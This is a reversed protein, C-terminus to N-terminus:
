IIRYFEYKTASLLKVPNSITTSLPFSKKSGNETEFRIRDDVTIKLKTVGKRNYLTVNAERGALPVIDYVGKGKMSISDVGRKSFGLYATDLLKIYGSEGYVLVYPCAEGAYVVGTINVPTKTKVLRNGTASRKLTPINEPKVYYVTDNDILGVIGSKDIPVVDVLEDGSNLTIVKGKVSKGCESYNMIKGYGDRTVFVLDKTAINSIVEIHVVDSFAVKDMAIGAKTLSFAYGNLVKMQGKKNFLVLNDANTMKIIKFSKDISSAIVPLEDYKEICFFQSDNYILIKSEDSSEMLDEKADMLKGRRRMSYHKIGYRLDEKIAERINKERCLATYKDYEDCAKQYKDREAQLNAANLVKLRLNMVITAQFETLGFTNRLKEKAEDDNKSGRIIKICKDMGGNKTDSLIIILAKASAKDRSAIKKKQTFYRRKQDFRIKIWELLIQRPTYLKPQYDHAVMYKAGYTMGLSTMKLLKEALANPDYGREYEVVFMLDGPDGKPKIAAHVNIVEPLKKSAADRSEDARKIKRVQEEILEGRTQMPCSTFVVVHKEYKNGNRDRGNMIDVYYPAQVKVKFDTKDFCGKLQKKNVINLNAPTDPYIDIKARPHDILELTAEMIEKSNFAAFVTAAGFGIGFNWQMLINPFRTALYVPEIDTKTYAEKVDYVPGLGDEESFFCDMAYKSLRAEAYRPAAAQMTIANGYGGHGDIYPIMAQFNRGLRYITQAPPADGHPYVTEIMRGVVTAVKVRSRNATWGAKFMTYLVRREVFKLGDELWPLSRGINVNAGSLISKNMVYDGLPLEKTVAVGIGSDGYLDEAFASAEKDRIVVHGKSDRVLEKGEAIELVIFGDKDRPEKSSTAYNRKRKM